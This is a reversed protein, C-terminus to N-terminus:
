GPHPPILPIKDTNPPFLSPIALTFQIAHAVINRPQSILLAISNSPFQHLDTTTFNQSNRSKIRTFFAFSDPVLSSFQICSVVINPPQSILLAITNPQFHHTHATTFN